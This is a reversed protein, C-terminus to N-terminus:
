KPCHYQKAEVVSLPLKLDSEPVLLKYENRLTTLKLDNRVSMLKVDNRVPPALRILSSSPTPHHLLHLIYSAM